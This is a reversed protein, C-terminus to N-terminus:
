YFINTKWYKDGMYVNRLSVSSMQRSGWVELQQEHPQSILMSNKWQKFSSRSIRMLGLYATSFRGEPTGGALHWLHDVCRLRDTNCEDIPGKYSVIM